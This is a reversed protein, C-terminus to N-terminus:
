INYYTRYNKYCFWEMLYKHVNESITVCSVLSSKLLQFLKSKQTKRLTGDYNSISLPLPGLEYTLIEFKSQTKKTDVLTKWLNRSRRMNSSKSKFCEIQSNKGKRLCKKAIPAYFDIDNTEIVTRIESTPSPWISSWLMAGVWIIIESNIEM